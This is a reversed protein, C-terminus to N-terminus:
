EFNGKTSYRGKLNCSPRTLRTVPSFMASIPRMSMWMTLHLPREPKAEDIYTLEANAIRVQNIKFPYISEM